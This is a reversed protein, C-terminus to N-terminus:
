HRIIMLLVCFTALVALKFPFAVRPKQPEDAHRPSGNSDPGQDCDTMTLENM